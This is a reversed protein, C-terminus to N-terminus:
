DLGEEPWGIRDGSRTTGVAEETETGDAVFGDVIAYDASLAKECCDVAVAPAAAASYEIEPAVAAAEWVECRWLAVLGLFPDKM